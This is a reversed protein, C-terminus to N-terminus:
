EEEFWPKSLLEDVRVREINAGPTEDSFRALQRLLARAENRRQKWRLQYICLAM